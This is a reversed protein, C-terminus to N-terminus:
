IIAKEIKELIAFMSDIKKVIRNQEEVPPLAFPISSLVKSTLHKITVGKCIDKLIGKSEYYMMYYMFFYANNNNIFRVRHLANQYLLNEELEYVCSRGVDGGECILLDGKKVSYREIEEDEFKMSNMDSIDLENWKVNVSRLYPFYKGTNKAKDLTKGLEFEAISTLSTWDWNYPLEFLFHNDICETHNSQHIYYSNDDGKFIVSEKKNRKIKGQKILEEKEARIRELLASAPEDNPDQPVLQGRIALDLIKSKILNILQRLNICDVKLNEIFAIVEKTKFVILKQENLPPLAILSKLGDSTGLRPMKLGYSILNVYSLFFSSMLFIQMYEPCISSYFELPLIESTCYGDRPAIVVKNLYPRLKSYLLQGKYFKHKNSKAPRMNKLVISIIKGTDKEIDELDLIWEDDKINKTDVNTCNGYPCIVGLRTWEWGEPVDFPIEDEICKVM